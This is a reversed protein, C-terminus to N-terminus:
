LVTYQMAPTSFISGYNSTASGGPSSNNPYASQASAYASALTCTGTYGNPGFTLVPFEPQLCVPFTGGDNWTDGGSTEDSAIAYTVGPVLTVPTVPSGLPAWIFGNGDPTGSALVTETALPTSTNTSVWLNVVHNQTNGSAFYRGFATVSIPVNVQFTYGLAGTYNNRAASTPFAVFNNTRTISGGGSVGAVATAVFETTAIKTSADTSAQTPATPNGTLAPSAKPALSSLLVSSDQVNGSGDATIIDGSPATTINTDATAYFGTTGTGTGLKRSAGDPIYDLTKNPHQTNAFDITANGTPYYLSSTGNWWSSDLTGSISGYVNTLVTAPILVPSSAKPVTWLLELEYDTGVGVAWECILPYGVGATLMLQASRTYTASTNAPDFGSLNAILEQTGIFLNCGDQCNVGITYLGTVLPVLMGTIRGFFYSGNVQTPLANEGGVQNGFNIPASLTISM